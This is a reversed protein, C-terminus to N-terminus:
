SRPWRRRKRASGRISVVVIGGLHSGNVLFRAKLESSAVAHDGHLELAQHRLVMAQFKSNRRGDGGAFYLDNDEVWLRGRPGTVQPALLRWRNMRGGAHPRITLIDAIRDHKHRLKAM